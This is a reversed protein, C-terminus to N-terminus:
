LFDPFLSIGLAKFAVYELSLGNEEECKGTRTTKIDGSGFRSMCPHFPMKDDQRLKGVVLVM